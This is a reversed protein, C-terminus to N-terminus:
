GLGPRMVQGIGPRYSLDYKSEYRLGYSLGYRYRYQYRCRSIYTYAYKSFFCEIDVTSPKSIIAAKRFTYAFCHEAKKKPFM